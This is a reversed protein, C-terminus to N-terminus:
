NFVTSYLPIRFLIFSKIEVEVCKYDLLYFLILLEFLATLLWSLNHSWVQKRFLFSAFFVTNPVKGSFLNVTINLVLVCLSAILQHSSPAVPYGSSVCFRSMPTRNQEWLSNVEAKMVKAERRCWHPLVGSPSWRSPVKRTGVIACDGAQQVVTVPHHPVHADGAPEDQGKLM